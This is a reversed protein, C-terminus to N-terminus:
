GMPGISKIAKLFQLFFKGGRGMPQAVHRGGSSRGVTQPIRTAGSRAGSSSGTVRRSAVRQAERESPNMGGPSFGSASSLFGM